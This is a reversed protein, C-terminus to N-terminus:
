EIKKAGKGFLFTSLGQSINYDVFLEPSIKSTRLSKKYLNTLLDVATKLELEDSNRKKFPILKIIQNTNRELIKQIKIDAISVCNTIISRWEQENFVNFAKFEFDDMAILRMKLGEYFM